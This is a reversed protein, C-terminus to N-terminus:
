QISHSQGAFGAYTKGCGKEQRQYKYLGNIAYKAFCSTSKGLPLGLYCRYVKWRHIAAIAKNSARSGSHVRYAALVERAGVAKWGDALLKLWLILDEHFYDPAFRYDELKSRRLLATSCGIVNERLM